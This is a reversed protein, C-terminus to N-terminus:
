VNYPMLILRDIDECMVTDVTKEPWGLKKLMNEVTVHRFDFQTRPWDTGDEGSWELKGMLRMDDVFIIDNYPRNGIAGLERLVPCGNDEKRGFATDGGSWHADLYFVAPEEISLYKIVEASDGLHIQVNPVDMFREKTLHHYIPDLEIGHIEEFYGIANNIGEGRFTGTEVYVFPVPRNISKIKSVFWNM